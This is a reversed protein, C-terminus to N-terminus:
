GTLSAAARPGREMRLTARRHYQEAMSRITTRIMKAAYSM